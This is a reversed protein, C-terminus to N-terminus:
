KGASAPMRGHSVEKATSAKALGEYGKVQVLALEDNTRRNELALEMNAKILGKMEESPKVKELQRQYEMLTKTKAVLEKKLFTSEEAFHKEMTSKMKDHNISKEVLRDKSKKLEEELYTVKEEYLRQQQDLLKNLTMIKMDKENEALPGEPPAGKFEPKEYAYAVFHSGGDESTMVHKASVSTAITLLTLILLNAKM